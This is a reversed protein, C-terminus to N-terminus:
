SATCHCDYICCIIIDNEFGKINFGKGHSVPFVDYM